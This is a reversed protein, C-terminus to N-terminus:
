RRSPEWIGHIKLSALHSAFTLWPLSRHVPASLVYRGLLHERAADQLEEGGIAWLTQATLIAIHARIDMSLVGAEEAATEFAALADGLNELKFQAIGSGFRAQVRLLDAERTTSTTPLSQEDLTGDEDLTRLLGLVTDFADQAGHYDGLGLRIRGLNVNAIAFNRETKSDETKEYEQELVGLAQQLLGV